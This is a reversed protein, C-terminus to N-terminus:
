AVVVQDVQLGRDDDIDLRRSSDPLGLDTCCACHNLAGFIAEPETGLAQGGVTGVPCGLHQPPQDVLARDLRLNRHEVLRGAVIPRERAFVEGVILFGIDVDTWGALHQGRGSSQHIIPRCQEIAGAFMVAVGAFQLRPTTRFHRSTLQREFIAPRIVRLIDEPTEKVEVKQADSGVFALITREGDRWM